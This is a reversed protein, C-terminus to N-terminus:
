RSYGDIINDGNTDFWHEKLIFNENQIERFSSCNKLTGESSFLFSQFLCEGDSLTMYSAGNENTGTYKELEEEIRNPDYAPM